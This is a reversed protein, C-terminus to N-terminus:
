IGTRLQKGTQIPDHGVIGAQMCPRLYITWVVMGLKLYPQPRAPNALQDVCVVCCLYVLIFKEHMRVHM